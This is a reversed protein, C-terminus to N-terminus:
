CRTLASGKVVIDLDVCRSVKWREERCRWRWVKLQCGGVMVVWVNVAKKVCGEKELKKQSIENQTNKKRFEECEQCGCWGVAFAKCFPIVYLGHQLGQGDADEYSSVGRSCILSIM